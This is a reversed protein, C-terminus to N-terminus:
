LDEKNEDELQTLKSLSDAEIKLINETAILV